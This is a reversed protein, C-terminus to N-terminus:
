WLGGTTVFQQIGVYRFVYLFANGALRLPYLLEVLNHFRFVFKGVDVSQSGHNQVSNTHTAASRHERSTM